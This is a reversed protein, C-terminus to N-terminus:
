ATWENRIRSAIERVGLGSAAREALDLADKGTATVAVGSAELYAAAVVAAFLLNRAELAEVRALQHLLAAARHHPEAYVPAGM